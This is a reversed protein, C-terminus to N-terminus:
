GVKGGAKRSVIALAPHALHHLLPAFPQHTVIQITHADIVKVDKIPPMVFAIRPSAMMRQLSFQVDDATLKSGDHFKVDKRLQFETTVPDIQHWTTALGPVIKM